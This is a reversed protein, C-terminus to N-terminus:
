RELAKQAAHRVGPDPDNSIMLALKREASHSGLRSLATVAALRVSAEPDDLSKALLKSAQPHKMRSLAEIVARRVETQPHDLGSAIADVHDAGIRSLAAICFERLAPQVSLRIVSQLSEATLMSALENIATTAVAPEKDTAAIWELTQIVELDARSGLAQIADLRREHDTSRAMAMLPPLADPHGISGLATAAAGSIDREDSNLLASLVRTATPGGIAALAQAASIRVPVASDEKALRALPEVADSSSLRGLSRAAYYRVWSDEDDLAAILARLGDRSDIFALAQVGASRLRPTGKRVAQILIGPVRPDDCYALSEIAARRVNEDPDQAREILLASCEPYGFYGAIRVASERVFPDSDSLKGAVDIKTREDGLSNIAAIAAQRVASSHHGLLDMLAEYARTDGIQALASAAQVELEADETLVQVLPPVSAPDGIRGLAVIASRRVEPDKSKLQGVLADTVGKGHRVLAEIVEKRVEAAGLLRTLTVATNSDNIWSLVRVITRLRETDSEDLAEILVSAAQSPAHQRVLDVVHEGEQFRTEYRQHLTVLAHAVSPVHLGPGSLLQMLPEIVTEDGLQGLAAVVATRVMEDQLLPVLRVAIRPDDLRALADIAPFALFFDGSEAIQLLRDAAEPAKIKTLAEIVHFRVNTDADDLTAILAPIAARNKLDGLALAAYMRLEYDPDKLLERLPAVTDFGSGTLVRLASNLVSLNRHQERLTRLLGTIAPESGRSAMEEVAQRRASWDGEDFADMLAKDQERELRETVDEVTVVLGVTQDEERLPAITVKQQMRDFRRSPAVTPCPLLYKHFRPALVEIVGEGLAQQFYTDLKREELNPVIERLPKGLADAESIGSAQALWSDWSRITLSRDVTFIGLNGQPM